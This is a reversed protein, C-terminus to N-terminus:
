VCVCVRVRVGPAPAASAPAAASPVPIRPVPAPASLAGGPPCPNALSHPPLASPSPQALSGRKGRLAAQHKLHLAALKKRITQYRCYFCFLILPPPSLSSPSDHEETTFRTNIGHRKEDESGTKLGEKSVLSARTVKEWM